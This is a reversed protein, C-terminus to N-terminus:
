KQLGKRSRVPADAMRPMAACREFAPPPGDPAPEAFAHRRM